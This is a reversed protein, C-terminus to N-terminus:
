LFTRLMADDLRGAASALVISMVSRITSIQREWVGSVHSAKAVNMIFDCQKEALFRAVRNEDLEIVGKELQNKGGVFNTGLDSQIQRVAGRLAIFYRLANLFADTTLDLM